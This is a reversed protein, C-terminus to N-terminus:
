LKIAIIKKDKYKIEEDVIETLSLTTSVTSYIIM